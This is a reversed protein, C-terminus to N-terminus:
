GLTNVSGLCGLVDQLLGFLLQEFYQLAVSTSFSRDEDIVHIGHDICRYGVELNM